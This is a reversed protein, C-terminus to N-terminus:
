IQNRYNDIYEFLKTCGEGVGYKLEIDDSDGRFSKVIIYEEPSNSLRCGAKQTFGLSKEINNDFLVINKYQPLMSRVLSLPKIVISKGPNDPFTKRTKCGLIICVHVCACM